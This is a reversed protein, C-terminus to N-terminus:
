FGFPRIKRGKKKRNNTGPMELADRYNIWKKLMNM